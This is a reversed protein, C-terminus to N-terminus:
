QQSSIKYFLFRSVLDWGVSKNLFWWEQCTFSINPFAFSTPVWRQATYASEQQALEMRDLERLNAKNKIAHANNLTPTTKECMMKQSHSAM